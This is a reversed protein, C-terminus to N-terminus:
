KHRAMWAKDRMTVACDICLMKGKKRIPKKGCIACLGAVNRRRHTASLCKRCGGTGPIVLANPKQCYGCVGRSLAVDRRKKKYETTEQKCKPCLISTMRGQIKAIDEEALPKGCKLCQNNVARYMRRLANHIETKNTGMAVAIEAATNGRVTRMTYVARLKTNTWSNNVKPRVGNTYADIRPRTTLTPM